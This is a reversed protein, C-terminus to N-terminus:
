GSQHLLTDHCNFLWHVITGTRTVHNSRGHSGPFSCSWSSGLQLCVNRFDIEYIILSLHCRSGLRSSPTSWKRSYFPYIHWNSVFPCRFALFTTNLTLRYALIYFANALFPVPQLHSGKTTLSLFIEGRGRMVLILNQTATDSLLQFSLSLITLLNHLYTRLTFPFHINRTKKREVRGQYGLLVLTPTAQPFRHSCLM